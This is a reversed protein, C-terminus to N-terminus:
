AWEGHVFWQGSDGDRFLWLWDGREDQVTYYDRAASESGDRHADPYPLPKGGDAEEHRLPAFAGARERYPRHGIPVRVRPDRSPDFEPKECVMAIWWPLALREPGLCRRVSGAGGRWALRVVPGDPTLTMVSAPEPRSFLRSPRAGRGICPETGRRLRDAARDAGWPRFVFADEPVYTESSAVVTVSETGFRDILQDLLRGWSAEQEPHTPSLLGPWLEIQGPGTREARLARLRIEDVGYGLPVREARPRVLSWLHDEDRSPRSLRLTLPFTAADIRRFEMALHCVGSEEKGLREVLLALLERVAILIGELCTVPGDFVRSVELPECRQIPEIPDPVGRGLAQDLRHLLGGGFRAALEARPLDLLQGIREIGVMALAACAAPDARLAAVPLPALSPRIADAGVLTIRRDITRAVARACAFTPAVAIRSDFGLHDLAAAVREALKAEGGYLHECGAIDLLLGDPDDAAVIPSFRLAWEALQQLRRADEEPAYPEVRVARGRLLSRAHAVTMGARVGAREAFECACVVLENGQHSTALLLAAHKSSRGKRTDGLRKSDGAERLLRRM